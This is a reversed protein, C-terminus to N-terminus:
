ITNKNLTNYYFIDIRPLPYFEDHHNLCAHPLSLLLQLDNLRLKILGFILISPQDNNYIFWTNKFLM